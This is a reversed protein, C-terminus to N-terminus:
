VTLLITDTQKLISDLMSLFEDTRESELRNGIIILCFATEPIGLDERKLGSTKEIQFPLQMKILNENKYGYKRLWEHEKATIDYYHALYKTYNHSLGADLPISCCPIMDDIVNSFIDEGISLIIEPKIERIKSILTYMGEINPMGQECQYFPISVGNYVYEYDNLYEEIYRARKSLCAISGTMSLADALNLLLVKRGSKILYFCIDLAIKTPSHLPGLLQSTIVLVFGTKRDSFDIVSLEDCFFAIYGNSIEFIWTDYYEPLEYGNEFAMAKIQSYLYYQSYINYDDRHSYAYKAYQQFMYNNKVMHLLVSYLYIAKRTDSIEEFRLVSSIDESSLNTVEVSNAILLRVNEDLSNPIDQDPKIIQNAYILFDALQKQM